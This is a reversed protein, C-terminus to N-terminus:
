WHNCLKLMCSKLCLLKKFNSTCTIQAADMTLPLRAVDVPLEAVDMRCRLVFFFSCLLWNMNTWMGLWPEAMRRAAPLRIASGQSSMHVSMFQNGICTTTVLVHIPFCTIKWIVKSSFWTRWSLYYTEHFITHKM